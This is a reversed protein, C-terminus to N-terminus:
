PGPTKCSKTKTGIRSDSNSPPIRIFVQRLAQGRLIAFPFTAILKTFSVGSEMLKRLHPTRTQPHGGLTELYDNLDDCVILLVNPKKASAFQGVAFCLLIFLARLKM